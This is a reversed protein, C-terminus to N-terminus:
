VKSPTERGVFVMVMIAAGRTLETGPACETEGVCAWSFSDCTPVMPLVSGPFSDGGRARLGVWGHLVPGWGLTGGLSAVNATECGGWLRREAGERWM